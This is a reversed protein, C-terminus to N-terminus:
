EKRSAVQNESIVALTEKATRDWSCDKTRDIGRLIMKEKNDIAEAIGRAISDSNEPDVLVAAGRAAEPMASVNGTVVACGAAMAELIPMGFGEYLSPLAFVEAHWYLNILLEDPVRGIMHIREAEKSNRARQEIPKRLWGHGGAIVLQIDEDQAAIKEFAKILRILNKRPQIQGVYLIYPKDIQHYRERLENWSRKREEEGTVPKFCDIDVGHHVISVRKERGYFEKMDLGTARSVAIIQDAKRAVHASFIHLLVWDKYTFQEGYEHFALDHMVAVTKMKKPRIYPLQQIPMFLLDPKHRYLEWPLRLQTWYKPWPSKAITVNDRRLENSLKESLAPTFLIWQHKDGIVPLRKALEYTYHTTGDARETALDSIDFGIKM